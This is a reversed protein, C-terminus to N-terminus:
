WSTAFAEELTGGNPCLDDIGTPSDVGPAEVLYGVSTYQGGCVPKITYRKPKPQEDDGPWFAPWRILKRRIARELEKKYCEDVFFEGGEVRVAGVQHLFQKVKNVKNVKNM